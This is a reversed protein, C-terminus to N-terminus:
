PFGGTLPPVTPSFTLTVTVTPPVTPIVTPDLTPVPTPSLTPVPTLSLTPVVTPNFTPVMTTASPAPVPSPTVALIGCATGPTTSPVAVSTAAVTASVSSSPVAVTASPVTVTSSAPSPVAQSCMPSPTPPAVSPDYRSDTEARVLGARFAGAAQTAHLPVAAYNADGLDQVIAPTVDFFPVEYVGILPNVQPTTAARVCDPAGEVNPPTPVAGPETCAAEVAGVQVLVVQEGTVAAEALVEDATPADGTPPDYIQTLTDRLCKTLRLSELPGTASAPAPQPQTPDIGAFTGNLADVSVNAARIAADAIADVEDLLTLLQKQQALLLANLNVPPVEVTGSPGPVSVGKGLVSGSVAGTSVSALAQGNYVPVVVANKVIRRATARGSPETFRDFLPERVPQDIRVSIEPCVLNPLSTDLRIGFAALVEAVTAVQPPLTADLTGSAADLAAAGFGVLPTGTALRVGIRGNDCSPQSDGTGKYFGNSYTARAPSMANKAEACAVFLSQDADNLPVPPAFPSVAACDAPLSLSTPTDPPNVNTSSGVTVPGLGVGVTGALTPANPLVGPPLGVTGCEALDAPQPLGAATAIADVDPYTLATTLGPIENYPFDSALFATAAARVAAQDAARQAEHESSSWVIAAFALAVCALVAPFTVAALVAISGDDGRRFRSLM